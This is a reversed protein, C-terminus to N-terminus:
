SRAPLAQPGIKGGARREVEAFLAAQLELVVDRPLGDTIAKVVAVVGGRLTIRVELENEGLEGPTPDVLVQIPNTAEMPDGDHLRGLNGRNKESM